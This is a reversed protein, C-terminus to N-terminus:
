QPLVCVSAQAPYRTDPCSPEYEPLQPRGQEERKEGAQGLDSM